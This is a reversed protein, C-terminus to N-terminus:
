RPDKQEQGLLFDIIVGLSQVEKGAHQERATLSAAICPGSVASFQLIM